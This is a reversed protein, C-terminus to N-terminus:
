GAVVQGPAQSAGGLLVESDSRAAIWGLGEFAHPACVLTCVPSVLPRRGGPGAVDGRSRQGPLERVRAQLAPHEYLRLSLSLWYAAAGYALDACLRGTSQKRGSSPSTARLTPACTSAVLRRRSPAPQPRREENATVTSPDEPQNRIRLSAYM